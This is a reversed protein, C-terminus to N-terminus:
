GAIVLVIGAARSAVVRGTFRPQSDCHRAVAMKMQHGEIM